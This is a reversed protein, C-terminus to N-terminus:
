RAHEKARQYTRAVVGVALDIRVDDIYQEPNASDDWSTLLRLAERTLFEASPAASSPPPLITSPEAPSPM